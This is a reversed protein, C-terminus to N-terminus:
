PHLMSQISPVRQHQSPYNGAYSSYYADSVGPLMDAPSSEEDLDSIGIGSDEINCSDHATDAYEQALVQALLKPGQSSLTDVTAHQELKLKSGNSTRLTATGDDSDDEDDTEIVDLRSAEIISNRFSSPHVYIEELTSYNRSQPRNHREAKKGHESTHDIHRDSKTRRETSIIRVRKFERIDEEEDNENQDLIHRKKGPYFEEAQGLNPEIEFPNKEGVISIRKFWISCNVCQVEVDTSSQAPTHCGPCTTGNSSASAPSDSHFLISMAVTQGPLFARPWLLSKKIDKGSVQDHLEYQQQTIKRHGQMGRFRIELVADFADWSTVFQLHVPAIRGIADELIVPEEILGRELRSPLPTQSRIVAQYTAINIAISRHLLGKLESGLQRLWDMRLAESLKGLVSNGANIGDNAIEIRDRLTCLMVHQSTNAAQNRQEVGDLKDNIENRNINLLTSCPTLSFEIWNICV